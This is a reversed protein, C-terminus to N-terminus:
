SACLVDLLSAAQKDSHSGDKSDAFGVLAARLESGLLAAVQQQSLLIFGLLAPIQLQCSSPGVIRAEAAPEYLIGQHESVSSNVEGVILHVLYVAQVRM